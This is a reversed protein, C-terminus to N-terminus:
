KSLFKPVTLPCQPGTISQQRTGARYGPTGGQLLLSGIPEPEETEVSSWGFWKHAAPANAQTALRGM